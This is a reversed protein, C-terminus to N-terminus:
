ALLAHLMAQHQDSSLRGKIGEAKAQIDWRETGIWGQGGSIQYARINYAQAVLFKLTVGTATLSSQQHRFFFRYDNEKNPKITAVDFSQALAGTIAATLILTVTTLQSM